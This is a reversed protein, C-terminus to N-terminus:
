ATSSRAREGRLLQEPLPRGRHLLPREGLELIERPELLRLDRAVPREEALELRFGPLARERERKGPDGAARLLHLRQGIEPAHQVLASGTRRQSSSAERSSLVGSHLRAVPSGRVICGRARAAAAPPRLGVLSRRGEPAGGGVHWPPRQMTPREGAGIDCCRARERPSCGTELCVVFRKHRADKGRGRQLRPISALWAAEVEDHTLGLESEFAVDLDPAVYLAKVTEIGYTEILWQVFHGAVPYSVPDDISSWDDELDALTPLSGESAFKSAWSSLSEGWWDDEMAVALGEGLLAYHAEGIRYWAIVHVDEHITFANVDEGFVIHTEYNLDNAHANGDNGTIEGKTDNDPYLYSVIREDLPEVELTDIVDDYRAELLFSSGTINAAAYSGGPYRFVHHDTVTEDLTDLWGEWTPWADDGVFEAYWGWRDGERCLAGEQMQAGRGRTTAYDAGGTPITFTSYVGEFSNGAYVTMWKGKAFPSPHVFAIGNGHEEYRRGGFVFDGDEFWVPVSGNLESLFGNSGPSGIVFLNENKDAETLDAYARLELSVWGGYWEVIQSAFDAEQPGYVLVATGDEYFDDFGGDAGVTCADVIGWEVDVSPTATDDGSDDGSDDPPESDHAHPSSDKTSGHCAGLFAAIPFARM